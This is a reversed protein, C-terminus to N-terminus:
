WTISGVCTVRRNPPWRYLTASVKVCKWYAYVIFEGNGPAEFLIPISIEEKPSFDYSYEDQAMLRESQLADHDTESEGDTTSTVCIMKIDSRVYDSIGAVWKDWSIRLIKQIEEKLDLDKRDMCTDQLSFYRECYYGEKNTGTRSTIGSTSKFM